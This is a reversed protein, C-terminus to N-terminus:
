SMVWKWWQHLSMILWNQVAEGWRYLLQNEGFWVTKPRTRRLRIDINLHEFLKWLAPSMRFWAFSSLQYKLLFSWHAILHCASTSEFCNMVNKSSSTQLKSSCSICIAQCAISLCAQSSSPTFNWAIGIRSKTPEADLAFILLATFNILLTASSPFDTYTEKKKKWKSFKSPLFEVCQLNKPM